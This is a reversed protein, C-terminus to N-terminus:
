VSISASLTQGHCNARSASAREAADKAMHAALAAATPQALLGDVVNQNVSILPEIPLDKLLALTSYRMAWLGLSILQAKIGEPLRNEALSLDQVLLSWLTHNRGLARVRTVGPTCAHLERIILTFAAREADPGSM